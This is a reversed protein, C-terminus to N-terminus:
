FFTNTLGRRNSIRDAMEVYLKYQELIASEYKEAPGKYSTPNVQPNWLRDGIPKLHTDM